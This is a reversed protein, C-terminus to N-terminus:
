RRGVPVAEAEFGHAYTWDGSIQCRIRHFRADVRFATRGRADVSVADSWVPQETPLTRAGDSVTMAGDAIPRVRRLRARAQAFPNVEASDITATMAPGSLSKFAGDNTFGGLQIAGGRWIRDDLSAPLDDISMSVDNLDELTFGPSVLRAFAQLGTEIYSWRGIDYRYVLSENIAESGQAPYGVIYLKRAPDIVSRIDRVDNGGLRRFFWRDIKNAGIATLSSGDMAYFGDDSLFYTIGGQKAISGPAICGKDVSVADFQYISADGTFTMRYIATDMFILGFEGGVLGTVANGQSLDQFDSLKNVNGWDDDDPQGIPSWWVRNNVQGDASDNTYGLVLHDKIVAMYRARPATAALDAWETQAGALPWVQVPDSFNTALALNSYLAFRWYEGSSTDYGGAKSADAWTTDTDLQYLSEADGAFSVGVGAPSLFGAGGSVPLAASSPAGAYAEAKPFPEYGIASPACNKAILAGPNNYPPLDPLWEAFPTLPIDM